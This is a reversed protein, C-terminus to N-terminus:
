PNVKGAENGHSGNESVEDVKKSVEHVGTSNHEENVKVADKEKKEGESEAASKDHKQKEEEEVEDKKEDDAVIHAKIQEGDASTKEGEVQPQEAKEQPKQGEVIESENQTIGPAEVEKEVTTVESIGQGPETTKETDNPLDSEKGVEAERAPAAEIKTDADPAKNEDQNEKVADKKTEDGETDKVTKQDDQTETVKSKEAGEPAAEHEKNDKKSASSRRRKKPPEAEPTPAAKAKESIRASRRPTEGTGWDFESAAPGGPHAKLYQELQRKNSIEEGTPSTFVIENKKPTGGQKPLFQM